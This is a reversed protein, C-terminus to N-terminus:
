GRLGSPRDDSDQQVPQDLMEPQRRVVAVKQCGGRFRQQSSVLPQRCRVQRLHHLRDDRSILIERGTGVQGAQELRGPDPVLHWDGEPVAIPDDM